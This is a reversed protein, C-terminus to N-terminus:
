IKAFLKSKARRVYPEISHLPFSGGWGIVPATYRDPCFGRWEVTCNRKGVKSVVYYAAGDGVGVSFLSGVHVGDPLSDSLAEAAKCQQTIYTHFEDQDVWEHTKMDYRGVNFEIDVLDKEAVLYTKPLVADAVEVRGRADPNDQHFVVGYFTKGGRTWKVEHRM